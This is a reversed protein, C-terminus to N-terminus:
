VKLSKKKKFTLEIGLTPSSNVVGLELTVHEVSQSLWSVRVKLSRNYKKIQLPNTFSTDILKFFSTGSLKVLVKKKRLISVKDIIGSFLQSFDKKQIKLTQRIDYVFM